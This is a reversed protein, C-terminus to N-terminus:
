ESSDAEAEPSDAEPSTPAYNWWLEPSIPCKAKRTAREVVDCFVNWRVNNEHYNNLYPIVVTLQEETLLKGNIKLHLGYQNANM